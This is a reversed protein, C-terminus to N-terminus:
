LRIQNLTIFYGSKIKVFLSNKIFDPYKIIKFWILSCVRIFNLSLIKLYKIYTYLVQTVSIKLM